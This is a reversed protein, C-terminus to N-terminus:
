KGNVTVNIEKGQLDINDKKMDWIIQKAKGASINSGIAGKLTYANIKNGSLTTIEVWVIDIPETGNIDYKIILQDRNLELTTNEIRSHPQQQNYVSKEREILTLKNEPIKNFKQQGISEGMLKLVNRPFFPIKKKLYYKEGMSINISHLTQKQQKQCLKTSFHSYCCSVKYVGEKFIKYTLKSNQSLKCILNGNIFINVSFQQHSSYINITAYDNNQAETKWSLFFSLAFLYTFFKKKMKKVKFKLFICNNVKLRLM